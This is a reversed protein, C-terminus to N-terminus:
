NHSASWYLVNDFDIVGNKDKLFKVYDTQAGVVKVLLYKEKRIFKVVLHSKFTKSKKTSVKNNKKSYCIKFCSSDQNEVLIIFKNKKLAYSNLVGQKMLYNFTADLIIKDEELNNTLLTIGISIFLYKIM